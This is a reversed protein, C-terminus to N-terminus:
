VGKSKSTKLIAALIRIIEQSKDYLCKLEHKESIGGKMLLRLWYASELAEKYAISMKHIFDASSQAGQSEIVNSGISTGSRLLQNGLIRGLSSKILKNYLNIIELSYNETKILIVNDKM